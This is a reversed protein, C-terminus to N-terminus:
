EKRGTFTVLGTMGGHKFLALLLSLATNLAAIM